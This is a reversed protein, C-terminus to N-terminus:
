FVYDIAMGYTKPAGPAQEAFDLHSGNLNDTKNKYAAGGGFLFRLRSRELFQWRRSFEFVSNADALTEGLRTQATFFRFAALDYHDNRLTYTSVGLTTPKTGDYQISMGAGMAVQGDLFRSWGTHLTSSGVQAPCRTADLSQAAVAPNTPYLATAGGLDQALAPAALALTLSMLAVTRGFRIVSFNRTRRDELLAYPPHVKFYANLDLM